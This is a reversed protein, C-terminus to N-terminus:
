RPMARKKTEKKKELFIAGCEKCILKGTRRGEKSLHYDVLRSHTCPQATEKGRKLRGAEEPVM